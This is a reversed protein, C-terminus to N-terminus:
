RVTPGWLALDISDQYNPDNVLQNEARFYYYLSTGVMTEGRELGAHIRRNRFKKLPHNVTTGPGRAMRPSHQIAAWTKTIRHTWRTAPLIDTANPPRTRIPRGRISYRGGWSYKTKQKGPRGKLWRPRSDTSSWSSTLQFVADVNTSTDPRTTTTL